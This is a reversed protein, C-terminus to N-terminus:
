TVSFLQVADLCDEGNKWALPLNQMNIWKTKIDMQVSIKEQNVCTVEQNCEKPNKRGNQIVVATQIAHHLLKIIFTIPVDWFIVSRLEM